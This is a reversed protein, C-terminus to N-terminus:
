KVAKFGQHERAMGFQRCQFLAKQIQAGGRRKHGTGAGAEETEHFRAGLTSLNKLMETFFVRLAPKNMSYLTPSQAAACEAYASKAADGCRTM